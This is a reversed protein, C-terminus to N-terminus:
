EVTFARSLRKETTPGRLTYEKSLFLCLFSVLNLNPDRSSPSPPVGMLCARAHKSGTLAPSIPHHHFARRHHLLPKIHLATQKQTSSSSLLHPIQMLTRYM